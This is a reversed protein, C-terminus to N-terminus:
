KCKYISPKCAPTLNRLQSRQAYLSNLLERNKIFAKLSAAGMEDSLEESALRRGELQLPSEESTIEEAGYTLFNGVSYILAEIEDGSKGVMFPAFYKSELIQQRLIKRQELCDAIRETLSLRRTRSSRAAEQSYALASLSLFGFLAIKKM